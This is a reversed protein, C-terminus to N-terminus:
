RSGAISITSERIASQSMECRRCWRRCRRWRGTRARCWARAPQGVHVQPEAAHHQLVRPSGTEAPAPAAQRPLGSFATAQSACVMARAPSRQAGPVDHEGAREARHDRDGRARRVLRPDGPEARDAGGERGPPCACSRACPGTHRDDARAVDAGVQHDLHHAQRLASSITAIAPMSGSESPSARAAGGRRPSWRRRRRRGPPSAPTRRPRAHDEVGGRGPACRCLSATRRACPRVTISRVGAAM